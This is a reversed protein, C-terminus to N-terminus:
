RNINIGATAETKMGEHESALHISVLLYRLLFYATFSTMRLLFAIPALSQHLPECCAKALVVKIAVLREFPCKAKLGGEGGWEGKCEYGKGAGGDDNKKKKKKRSGLPVTENKEIFYRSSFSFSFLHIPTTRATTIASTGRCTRTVVTAMYLKMMVLM